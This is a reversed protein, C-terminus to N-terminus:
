EKRSRQDRVYLDAARYTDEVNVANMCMVSFGFVLRDYNVLLIMFVKGGFEWVIYKFSGQINIDDTLKYFTENKNTVVFGVTGITLITQLNNYVVMDICILSWFLTFM